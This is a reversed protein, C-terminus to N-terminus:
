ALRVEKTGIKNLHFEKGLWKAAYSAAGLIVITGLNQKVGDVIDMGVYQFNGTDGKAVSILNSIATSGNQDPAMFPTAIALTALAAPIVHVKVKNGRRRDRKSMRKESREYHRDGRRDSRAEHRIEPMDGKWSKPPHKLFQPPIVGKRPM